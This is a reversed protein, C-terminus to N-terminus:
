DNMGYQAVSTVHAITCSMNVNTSTTIRYAEIKEVINNQGWPNSEFAKKINRGCELYKNRSQFWKGFLLKKFLVSSIVHIM